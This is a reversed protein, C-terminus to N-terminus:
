TELRQAVQRVHGAGALAAVEDRGGGPGGLQALRNAGRQAAGDPLHAAHVVDARQGGHIRAALAVVLGEAEVELAPQELLVLLLERHVAVVRLRPLGRQVLLIELDGGRVPIHEALRAQPSFHLVVITRHLSRCLM